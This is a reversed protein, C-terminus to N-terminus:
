SDKYQARDDWWGHTVIHLDITDDAGTRVHMERIQDLRTNIIGANDELASVGSMLTGPAITASAAASTQTTELFIIPSTNSGNTSWRSDTVMRAPSHSLAIDMGANYGTGATDTYSLTPVVWRFHNGDQVFAQINGAGDTRIAGIRRIHEAYGAIDIAGAVNKINTGAFQIDIAIETDGAANAVLFVYFWTNILTGDSVFAMGLNGTGTVWSDAAGLLKNMGATQMNRGPGPITANGQASRAEGTQVNVNVGSSGEIALGWISGRPWPQQLSELITGNDRLLELNDTDVQLAGSLTGGATLTAYTNQDITDNTVTTWNSSDSYWIKLEDTTIFVGNGFAAATIGFRVAETGIQVFEWGGLDEILDLLVRVADEDAAQVISTGIATALVDDLTGAAIVPLGNLDFGLRTNGAGQNSRTAKDPLSMDPLVGSTDMDTLPIQMSRTEGADRSEQIRLTQRDVMQEVQATPFDLAPTLDVQQDNSSVRLIHLTESATVPQSRPALNVAGALGNGGTV